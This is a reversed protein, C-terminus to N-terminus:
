RRVNPPVEVIIEDPRVWGLEDRVVRERARPDHQLADFEAQLQTAVRHLRRNEELQATLQADLRRHRPLGNPGLVMAPVGVVATVLLATPVGLAIRDRVRSMRASRHWAPRSTRLIEARMAGGADVKVAVAVAVAVAVHIGDMKGPAAVDDDGDLNVDVDEDPCADREGSMTTVM